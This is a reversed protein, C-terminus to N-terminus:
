ADRHGENPRVAHGRRHLLHLAPCLLLVAYPLLALLQSTPGDVILGLIAIAILVITAVGVACRMRRTM